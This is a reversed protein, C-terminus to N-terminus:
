GEDHEDPDLDLLDVADEIIDNLLCSECATHIGDTLFQISGTRFSDIFLDREACDAMGIPIIEGAAIMGGCDECKARYLFRHVQLRIIRRKRVRDEAM